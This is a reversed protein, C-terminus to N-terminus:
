SRSVVMSALGHGNVLFSACCPTRQALVWTSKRLSCKPSRARLAAPALEERALKTLSPTKAVSASCRWQAIKIDGTNPCTPRPLGKKLEVLSLSHGLNAQRSLLSTSATISWTPTSLPWSDVAPPRM